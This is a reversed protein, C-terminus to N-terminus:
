HKFRERLISADLPLERIVAENKGLPPLEAGDLFLRLAGANGITLSLGEGSSPVYEEGARMIWSKVETGDPRLVQMWTDATARLLVRSQSLPPPFAAAIAGGPGALLPPSPPLKTAEQPEPLAEGSAADAAAGDLGLLSGPVLASKGAEQSADEMQSTQGGAEQRRESKVLEEVSPILPALPIQEDPSAQSSIAPPEPPEPLNERKAPLASLVSDFEPPQAIQPGSVENVGYLYYWTSFVVTTLVLAYFLIGRGYPRLEEPVAPFNLEETEAEAYHEEHVRRLMEEPDLHLYNAYTRIYGRVYVAAPLDGFRGEELATLHSSNIRLYQAANSIEQGCAQRARRLDRGVGGYEQEPGTMVLGGM